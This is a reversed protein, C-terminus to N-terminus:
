MSWRTWVECLAGALDTAVLGAQGTRAAALDGALGHAYVAVRAASGPAVGQAMLAAIIGSLVDGSGGTAMGANGTPSVALAGDPDAIVTRSGKLVLYADNRRAFDSAVGLRDAQVEAVTGGTLRAMEGPHPTLVLDVAAGKLLDPRTALANLADADLVVPVDLAQLLQGLLEATGEGRPIGPGIALADKGEAAALLADLDAPALPGDGALTEGMIEPYRRAVAHGGARTALTVLGAGSRLAGLCALAAAGPKDASGAVVLVHGMTGKHADPPRRPVLGLVGDEELLECPPGLAAECARPLGIDVVESRGALAAGPHLVLGRKLYGFTVTADARVAVGLVQGTDASLGSPLDVAVVKAGATRAANAASILGALRGTM